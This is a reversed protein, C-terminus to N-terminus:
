EENIRGNCTRMFVKVRAGSPRCTQMSYQLSAVNYKLVPALNNKIVNKSENQSM